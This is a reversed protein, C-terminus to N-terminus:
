SLSASTEDLLEAFLGHWQARVAPWEYTAARDRGARSIQAAGIDGDVLRRVAHALARPDQAPVLLGTRGDDVLDPIGGVATAVVPMGSAWAEVITVPANDVLNTNLLIDHEDFAVRKRATDLFGPFNVHAALGLQEVLARTEASASGEKGAMTLTFSSDTSRLQHLTRVATGPDYEHDFSRMWLLRPRPEARERYVYDSGTIANHIVRVGRGRSPLRCLYASPAVIADARTMLHLVLRPHRKEFAPLNGGHLVLVHPVSRLRLLHSAVLANVFAPGSYVAVIAVDVRGGWRLACAIMDLQRLVRNRVSSTSHVVANEGQFLAALTETQSTPWGEHQGLMPAIFGLRPWRSPENKHTAIVIDIADRPTSASLSKTLVGTWTRSDTDQHMWGEREYFRIARANGPDVSLRILQAGRAHAAAEAHGMLLAAVGTGQMAPFVAVSLIGFDKTARETRHPQETAKSTRSPRSGLQRVLVRGGVRVRARVRHRALIEPHTLLHVALARKNRRLFGGLPAQFSGAFVFGVIRRDSDEAVIAVLDHPGDVQWEYYRRVFAVGLLSLASDPFAVVHVDAVADLDSRRLKRVRM